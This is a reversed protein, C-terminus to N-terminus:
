RLLKTHIRNERFPKFEAGGGSYYTGFHEVYQLRLSHVFAGLSNMLINIVHGFIFIIAAIVIGIYPISFVMGALFNFSLAIGATTLGMALLRAYSLTNGVFGILEIFAMFGYGKLLMLIGIVALGAGAYLAVPPLANMFMSLAAIIAGSILVYWSLHEFVAASKEGRRLKDFMGLLHGFMIHAFGMAVAAGLVLMANSKYIPDVWLALDNPLMNLIYKPLFDGLYSGMLIGFFVASIGTGIMIYGAAKANDSRKGMTKETIVGAIMLFIGYIADTLMFGFFICFTPMIFFTPDIENYRPLAFMKTLGEFPKAVRPNELLIPAEELNEEKEIVCRGRTIKQIASEVEECQKKPVWIRTVVTRKTKGCSIFIESREKEFRLLEEAVLIDKYTKEFIAKLKEKKKEYDKRYEELDSRLSAIIDKIRGSGEIKIREFSFERLLAELKEKNEKKVSISVVSKIDGNKIDIFHADGMRKSLESKLKEASHSSVTGLVSYVYRSEGLNEVKESVDSYIEYSKLKEKISSVSSADQQMGKSLEEIEDEYKDLISKAFEVVERYSMDKVPKQDIYEVGLMDALINKQVPPEFEALIDALKRLRILLNSVEVVKELPEDREVKLKELMKDGLYEIQTVGMKHLAEMVEAKKEEAIICDLRCM